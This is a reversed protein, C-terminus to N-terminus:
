LCIAIIKCWIFIIGVKNTGELAISKKEDFLSQNLIFKSFYVISKKTHVSYLM